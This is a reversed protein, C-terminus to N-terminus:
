QIVMYTAMTVTQTQSTTSINRDVGEPPRLLFQVHHLQEEIVQLVVDLFHSFM